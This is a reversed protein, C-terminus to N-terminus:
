HLPKGPFCLNGILYNTGHYAFKPILWNNTGHDCLPHMFRTDIEISYDCGGGGGRLGEDWRRM